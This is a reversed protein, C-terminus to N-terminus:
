ADTSVPVSYCRWLFDDLTIVEDWVVFGDPGTGAAVFRNRGTKMLAINKRLADFMVAGVKMRAAITRVLRAMLTGDRFPRYMYIVDYDGYRGFRLADGKFMRIPYADQPAIAALLFAAVALTQPDYELGDCASFRGLAFALFVKEGIGSGVDLFRGANELLRYYRLQDFFEGPDLAIYHHHGDGAQIKDHETPYKAMRRPNFALALATAVRRGKQRPPVSRCFDTFARLNDPTLLHASLAGAALPSAKFAKMLEQPRPNRTFRLAQPPIGPVASGDWVSGWRTERPGCTVSMVSGAGPLCRLRTPQVPYEVVAM